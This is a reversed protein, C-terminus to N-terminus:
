SMTSYIWQIINFSEKDEKMLVNIHNVLGKLIGKYQLDSQKLTEFVGM